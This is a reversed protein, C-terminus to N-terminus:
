ADIDAAAGLRDLGRELQRSLIEDFDALRLATMEDRPPLAIVADGGAREGDAAAGPLALRERRQQDLRMVNRRDVFVAFLKRALRRLGIALPQRMLELVLDVFKAALVDDRENRLRHDAC